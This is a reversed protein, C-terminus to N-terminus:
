QTDVFNCKICYAFYVFRLATLLAATVLDMLLFITSYLTNKNAPRLSLQADRDRM